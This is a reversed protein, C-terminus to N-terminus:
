YMTKICLTKAQQKLKIKHANQKLVYEFDIDLIILGFYEAYKYIVKLLYSKYIVPALSIAAQQASHKILYKVSHKQLCNKVFLLIFNCFHQLIVSLAM